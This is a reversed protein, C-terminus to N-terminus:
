IAAEVRHKSDQAESAAARDGRAAASPPRCHLPPALLWPPPRCGGESPAKSPSKTRPMLPASAPQACADRRSAAPAPELDPLPRAARGARSMLLSPAAALAAEPARIVWSSATSSLSSFCDPLLSRHKGGLPWSKASASRPRSRAARVRPRATCPTRVPEPMVAPSERARAPSLPRPLPPVAAAQSSAPHAGSECLMGRLAPVLGPERGPDARMRRPARSAPPTLCAGTPAAKTRHRATAGTPRGPGTGSTSFGDLGFLALM